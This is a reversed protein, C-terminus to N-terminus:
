WWVMAMMVMMMMMVVVMMMMVVMMMLHLLLSLLFLVFVRVVHTRVTKIDVIQSISRKKRLSLKGDLLSYRM